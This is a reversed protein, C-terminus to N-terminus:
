FEYFVHRPLATIILQYYQQADYNSSPFIESEM